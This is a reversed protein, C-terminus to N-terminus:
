RPLSWSTPRSLLASWTRLLALGGGAMGSKDWAHEFSHRLSKGDIAVLQGGSLSVMSGVWSRFCGELADPDMKAFIRGFTDHSPIGDPLDLFTKLWDLKAQGYTAVSVWDEAGCIVAFLAITLVDIFRHTINRKRPDPMDLFARPIRTTATTDM